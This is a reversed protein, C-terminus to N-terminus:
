EVCIDERKFEISIITLDDDWTKKLYKNKIEELISKHDWLRNSHKSLTSKFEEISYTSSENGAPHVGDSCLFIKSNKDIPFSVQNFDSNYDVGLVINKNIIEKVNNETIIVPYPQGANTLSCKNNKLDIYLCTFTLFIDPFNKLYEKLRRNLWTTFTMPRFENIDLSKFYEYSITSKLAMTIFAPKIGHGAVDGLLVVIEDKSLKIIEYYDGSVGTTPSPIYTVNIPIPLSKNLTNSMMANQFEGALLLEKDIRKKLERNERKMTYLNMAKEIEQQLKEKNWPKAIFTFIDTKIFNEMDSIDSNGSLIISIIEPYRKKILAILENGKIDPMRQDSIIVAIESGHKKILKIAEQASNALYPIVSKNKFWKNLSRKISNLVNEEDDIFLIKM